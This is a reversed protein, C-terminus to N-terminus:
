KNTFGTVIARFGLNTISTSTTSGTIKLFSWANKISSTQLVASAAMDASQQPYTNSSIKVFNELTNSKDGAEYTGCADHSGLVIVSSLVGASLGNQLCLSFYEFPRVDISQILVNATGTAGSTTNLYAYARMSM